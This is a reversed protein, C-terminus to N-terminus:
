KTQWLGHVNCYARASLDDSDVEFVAYGVIANLESECGDDTGFGILLDPRKESLEELEKEFKKSDELKFGLLVFSTSSSNTVFDIKFKM